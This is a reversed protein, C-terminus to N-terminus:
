DKAGHVVGFCNTGTQMVATYTTPRKFVARGHQQDFWNCGVMEWGHNGLDDVHGKTNDETKFVGDNYIHVILYEWRPTKDWHTM